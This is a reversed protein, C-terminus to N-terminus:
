SRKNNIIKVLKVMACCNLNAQSVSICTPYGVACSSKCLLTSSILEASSIEKVIIEPSIVAVPV